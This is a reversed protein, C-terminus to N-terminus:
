KAIKPASPDLYAAKSRVRDTAPRRCPSVNRGNLEAGAIVIHNGSPQLALANVDWDDIISV